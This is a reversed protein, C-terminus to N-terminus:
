LIPNSKANNYEVIHEQTNTTKTENDTSALYNALFVETIVGKHSSFIVEMFGLSLLNNTHIELAYHMASYKHLQLIQTVVIHGHENPRAILGTVDAVDQLEAGAAGYLCIHWM